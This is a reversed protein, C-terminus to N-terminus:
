GVAIDRSYDHYVGLIEKVQGDELELIYSLYEILEDEITMDKTLILAAETKRRVIKKDLLETNKVGALDSVNGEIEYITHDYDTPIM